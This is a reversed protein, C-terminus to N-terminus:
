DTEKPTNLRELMKRAPALDKETHMSGGTNMGLYWEVVSKRDKLNNIHFTFRQHFFDMKGEFESYRLGFAKVRDHLFGLVADIRQKGDVLEVIEGWPERIRDHTLWNPCNWFIDKGSFGGKLQYEIYATRQADNWVYGRQYEPDLEVGGREKDRTELWSELYTWGIDCRYTAFPFQPIDRFNM